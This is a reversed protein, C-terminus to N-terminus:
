SPQQGREAHRDTREPPLWGQGRMIEWVRGRIAERFAVTEANVDTPDTASARVGLRALEEFVWSMAADPDRYFRTGRIRVFRWGARELVAQRAVLRQMVATEFPSEARRTARDIERRKQAPIESSSSLAGGFTKPSSIETPIWAKLYRFVQKAKRIDANEAGVPEIAM